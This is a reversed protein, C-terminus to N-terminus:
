SFRNKEQWGAARDGIMRPNAYVSDVDVSVALPTGNRDYITGRRPPLELEKLYQQEALERLRPGEEQQQRYARRVIVGILLTLLLTCLILRVRIWGLSTRESM